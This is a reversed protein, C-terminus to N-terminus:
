YTKIYNIHFDGRKKVGGNNDIWVWFIAMFLYITKIDVNFFNPYRDDNVLDDLYRFLNNLFIIETDENDFKIELEAFADVEAGKRVWLVRKLWLM